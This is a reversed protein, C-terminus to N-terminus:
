PKEFRYGNEKLKLLTQRLLKSREGRWHADHFLLVNKDPPLQKITCAVGKIGQWDKQEVHAFANEPAFEVDWSL